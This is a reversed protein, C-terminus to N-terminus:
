KGSALESAVRRSWLQVRRDEPPDDGGGRQVRQVDQSAAARNGQRQELQSRYHLARLNQPYRELVRDYLGRSRDLDAKPWPMTFYFRGLAVLPGGRDVWPDIAIAKEIRKRFAGELGETVASWVGAGAGYSGINIAAYYHGEARDPRAKAARDGLAWGEKGLKKKTSKEPANDAVWYRLRSLRWLAEFSAPDEKLAAQLEAEMAEIAGERDREAFLADVRQWRAADDAADGAATPGPAPAKKLPQRADGADRRTTGGTREPPEARSGPAQGLVLWLALSFPLIPM